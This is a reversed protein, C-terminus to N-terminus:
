LQRQVCCHSCAENMRGAIQSKIPPDATFQQRFREEAATCGPYVLDSNFYAVWEYGPDM